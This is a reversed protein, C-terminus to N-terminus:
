LSTMVAVVVGAVDDLGLADEGNSRVLTWFLLTCRFMPILPQLFMRQRDTDSGNEMM